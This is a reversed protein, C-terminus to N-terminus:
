LAPTGWRDLHRGDALQVCSRQDARATRCSRAVPYRGDAASIRGSAGRALRARLPSRPGRTSPGCRRVARGSSDRPRVLSEGVSRDARARLRRFGCRHCRARGSHDRKRRIPCRRRTSWQVSSRPRHRWHCGSLGSEWGAPAGPPPARGSDAGAERPPIPVAEHGALWLGASNRVGENRMRSFPRQRRRSPRDSSERSIWDM